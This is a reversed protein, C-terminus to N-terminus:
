YKGLDDKDEKDIERLRSILTYVMAGGLVIAGIAAALAGFRFFSPADLGAARLFAIAYGAIATCVILTIIIPAIKRM